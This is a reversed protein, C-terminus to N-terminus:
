LADPSQLIFTGFLRVVPRWLVRLHQTHECSAAAARPPDARQAVGVGVALPDEPWDGLARGAECDSYVGSVLVKVWSIVARNIPFHLVGTSPHSDWM